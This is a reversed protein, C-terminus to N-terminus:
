WQQVDHCLQGRRKRIVSECSCAINSISVCHGGLDIPRLHQSISMGWLRCLELKPRLHCSPLLWIASDIDFIARPTLLFTWKSISQKRFHPSTKTKRSADEAEFRSSLACVCRGAAPPLHCGGTGGPKSLVCSRLGICGRVSFGRVSVVADKMGRAAVNDRAGAVCADRLSLDEPDLACRLM